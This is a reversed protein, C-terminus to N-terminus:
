GDRGCGSARPWARARRGGRCRRGARRRATASPARRGDYENKGHAKADAKASSRRWAEEPAQRVLDAAAAAAEPPPLGSERVFGGAVRARPSALTLAVTTADGKRRTSKRKTKVPPPVWSEGARCGRRAGRGDNGEPQAVLRGVLFLRTTSRLALPLAPTSSLRQTTFQAKCAEHPTRDSASWLYRGPISVIAPPAGCVPSIVKQHM